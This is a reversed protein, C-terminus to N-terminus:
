FEGFINKHKKIIGDFLINMAENDRLRENTCKIIQEKLEDIEKHFEYVAKKVDETYIAEHNQVMFGCGISKQKLNLKYM